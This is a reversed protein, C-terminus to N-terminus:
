NGMHISKRCEMQHCIFEITASVVVVVVCCCRDNLKAEVVLGIANFCLEDDLTAKM